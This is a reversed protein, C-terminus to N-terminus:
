FSLYQLGATLVHLLVVFEIKRVYIHVHTTTPEKYAIKWTMNSKTLQFYLLHYANGLWLLKKLRLSLVFFMPVKIAVM